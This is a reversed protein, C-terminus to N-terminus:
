HPGLQGGTDFIAHYWNDPGWYLYKLYNSLILKTMIKISVLMGRSLCEETFKFPLSINEITKIM